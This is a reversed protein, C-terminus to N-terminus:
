TLCELKMDTFSVSNNLELSVLLFMENDVSSLKV